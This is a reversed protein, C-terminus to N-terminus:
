LEPVEFFRYGEGPPEEPSDAETWDSRMEWLQQM